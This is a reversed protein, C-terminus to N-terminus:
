KRAPRVRGVKCPLVEEMGVKQATGLNRSRLSRRRQRRTSPTSVGALRVLTTFFFPNGEEVTAVEIVPDDLDVVVIDPDVIAVGEPDFVTDQFDAVVLIIIEILLEPVEVILLGVRVVM